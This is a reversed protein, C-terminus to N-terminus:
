LDLHCEPNDLCLYYGYLTDPHAVGTFPQSNDWTSLVPGFTNLINM